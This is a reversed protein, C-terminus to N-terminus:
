SSTPQEYSFVNEQVSKVVGEKVYKSAHSGGDKLFFNRVYHMIVFSFFFSPIMEGLAAYTTGFILVQLFLPSAAVKMGDPTLFSSTDNALTILPIAAVIAITFIGIIRTMRSALAVVAM